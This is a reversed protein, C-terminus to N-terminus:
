VSKRRSYRASQRRAALERKSRGLAHQAVEPKLRATYRGKSKDAIRFVVHMEKEVYIQFLSGGQREVGVIAPAGHDYGLGVKLTIKGHHAIRVFIYRQVSDGKREAEARDKCCLRNVGM